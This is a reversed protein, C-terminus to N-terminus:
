LQGISVDADGHSHGSQLLADTILDDLRERVERSEPVVDVAQWVDLMPDLGPGLGGHLELTDKDKGTNKM